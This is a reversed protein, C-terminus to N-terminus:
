EVQGFLAAIYTECGGVWLTDSSSRPICGLKCAKINDQGFTM